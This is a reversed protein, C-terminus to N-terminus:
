SPSIMTAAPSITQLFHYHYHYHYFYYFASLPDKLNENLRKRVSVSDSVREEDKEEVDFM